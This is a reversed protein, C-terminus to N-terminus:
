NKITELVELIENDVRKMDDILYQPPKIDGVELNGLVRYIIKTRKILDELKDKM